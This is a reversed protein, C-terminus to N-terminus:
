KEGIMYRCGQAGMQASHRAGAPVDCRQNVRFTESRGNTELTMQGALIIHATLSPHTHESYFANPAMKGFM